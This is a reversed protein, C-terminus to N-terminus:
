ELDALTAAIWPVEDNILPIEDPHRSAWAVVDARSLEGRDFALRRGEPTM